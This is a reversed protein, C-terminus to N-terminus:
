AYAQAAFARTRTAPLTVSASDIAYTPHLGIVQYARPLLPGFTFAGKADTVAIMSEDDSGSITMRAGAVAGGRSTDRVTGAFTAAPAVRIEVGGTKPRMATGADSGRVASISQWKDPAHAIAFTGDDGSEALPWGDISVIAHGVPGAANIVRGRVAEGRVLKVDLGSIGSGRGIAYDPHVVYATT